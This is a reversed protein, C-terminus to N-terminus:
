AAVLNRAMLGSKLIERALARAAFGNQVLVDSSWVTTGTVDRLEPRFWVEIRDARKVEVVSTWVQM